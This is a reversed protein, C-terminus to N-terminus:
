AWSMTFNTANLAVMLDSGYGIFLFACIFSHMLYNSFAMQGVASLRSTLFRLRGTKCLILIVGAHGCTVALRGLQYASGAFSQVVPDFNARVNITATTGNVLLGVAYGTGALLAYFRTSREGSLVGLKMLALGLFMMDFMYPHYYPISNWEHVLKGRAKIVSIFGGRWEQADKLLADPSPNRKKVAKEWESKADQEEDSLKEGREAKAIAVKGKAMDARTLIGQVIGFGSVLLLGLAGIIILNRPSMKRFPYLALGCIAYPYLIEGHWLLYAHVVGFLLLWLTLRYYIDAADPRGEIKTTFLIMSAGFVLSFLCRMKGEALVHLVIWIWLNVGTAGGAATPNDYAQYYLGFDIINMLLIGLLAFGRLADLGAIREGASVPRAAALQPALDNPSFLPLSTSTPQM